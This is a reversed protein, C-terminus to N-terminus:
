GQPSPSKFEVFVRRGKCAERGQAEARVEFVLRKGQLESPAELLVQLEGSEGPALRLSKPSLGVWSLDGAPQYRRPLSKGDEAPKRPAPGVSFRLRGRVGAAVPGKSRTRAWM